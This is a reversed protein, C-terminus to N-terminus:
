LALLLVREQQTGEQGQRERRRNGRSAPQESLKTPDLGALEALDGEQLCTWAAEGDPTPLWLAAPWRGGATPAQACRLWLRPALDLGVVAEGPEPRLKPHRGSGASTLLRLDSGQRRASGPLREILQWSHELDGIWLLRCLGRGDVVLTLPQELDQGEAGLRQLSLLDAVADGPHRRHCLEELRHRQSPRLGATRGALM